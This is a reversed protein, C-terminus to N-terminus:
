KLIRLILGAGPILGMGERESTLCEVPAASIRGRTPKLVKEM